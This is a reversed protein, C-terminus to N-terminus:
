ISQSASDLRSSLDESLQPPVYKTIRVFRQNKLGFDLPILTDRSRFIEPMILDIQLSDKTLYNSVIQFNEFHIQFDM